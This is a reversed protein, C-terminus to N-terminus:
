LILSSGVESHVVDNILIRQVVVGMAREPQDYWCPLVTSLNSVSDLCVGCQCFYRGFFYIRSESGISPEECFSTADDFATRLGSGGLGGRFLHPYNRYHTDRNM